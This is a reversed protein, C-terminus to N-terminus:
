NDPVGMPHVMAVCGIEDKGLTTKALSALRTAYEEEILSRFLSSARTIGMASSRTVYRQKWFNRLEDMTRAAGRMRALLVNM